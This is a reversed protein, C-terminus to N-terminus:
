ATGALRRVTMDFGHVMSARLGYVVAIFVGASLLAGIVMAVRAGDLTGAAQLSESLGSEPFVGAFAVTAPSLSTLLPGVVQIEKGSQFACLGVIGAIVGVIGVTSVVSSISGKSKLSSQLGIMCCFALFPVSVIALVIGAEPLVAPVRVTGGAVGGGGGGGGGWGGGASILQVDTTVGAARALLGSQALGVYLGAVLLTGVPVALLPILYAIMGRVKGGLYAAPTIPTTLLLDLTGDEREKAVATASMNLAVLVVVGLEGVVTSLLAVRFADVSMASFHFYLVLALGWLGGAGIFSWRALMRGFTANRAAAERWAIPNTWVTRPARHESGKASLGFMRRYWPAAGTERGGAGGLGAIGGARVTITSAAMLLVSLGGSLLCWTTVPKELFWAGLGRQSGEPLRQYQSPNLLAELALFPNLATMYSVSHVGLGGGAGARTFKDVAWTVALYSVVGIYFAFVARKGVLRSVSLAIALAGVLLAAGAAIAYSGFISSGPVGGFYQTLAFLPLSALLLALIFFLRGLLNGLVIESASMPTTLLIDWTRPNAEQAIAGAMFVPALLCILAIQLYAVFQFAGSAAGAMARYTLSGGGANYLLLYLLTLILAGLYISRIYLHRRRRSGGQVLRVAIPNAPGLRLLWRVIVPM